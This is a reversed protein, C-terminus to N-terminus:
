INIKPIRLAHSFIYITNKSVGCSVMKSGIAFAYLAYLLSM